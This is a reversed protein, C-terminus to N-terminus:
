KKLAFYVSILAEIAMGMPFIIWTIAWRWTLMSIALYITVIIAWLAFSMSLRLKRRNQRDMSFEKFEEVVSDDTKIYKPRMQWGYILVGSAVAIIVLFALLSIGANWGYVVGLIVPVLSLIYIVVALAMLAASKQREDYLYAFGPMEEERQLEAILGSVDGIGGIAISYADEESKGDQILDLYKERTNQFMEERLEITKRTKPAHAFLGDIYERLMEDM